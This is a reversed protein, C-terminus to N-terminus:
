KELVVKKSVGAVGAAIGGAAGVSTAASVVTSAVGFAAMAAGATAVCVTTVVVAVAVAAVIKGFSAWSFLGTPDVIAVPSGMCYSYWNSGDKIPDEQTFSGTGIDYYRARLYLTKTEKDYYEGCYRWPNPDNEDIDDEVGFADYEYTKTIAGTM